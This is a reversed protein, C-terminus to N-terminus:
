EEQAMLTSLVHVGLAARKGGTLLWSKNIQLSESPAAVQNPGQSQGRGRSVDEWIKLSFTEMSKARIENIFYEVLALFMQNLSARLCKGDEKKTASFMTEIFSWLCEGVWVKHSLVCTRHHGYANALVEDNTASFMLESVGRPM